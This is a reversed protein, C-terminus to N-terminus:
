YLDRHLRGQRQLAAMAGEGLQEGLLAMVGKGIGDVAGCLYLHAGGALYRELLDSQEALCHQVYQGQDRSWAKDLQSILGLEEFAALEARYYDDQQAHREGFILWLPAQHGLRQRAELFGLYPALGTGAGLLILPKDDSPLHFSGHHRLRVKLSQGPRCSALLGSALGSGGGALRQERVMLRIPGQDSAVSYTRPRLPTLQDIYDQAGLGTLPAFERRLAIAQWLPLLQNDVLVLAAPDLGISALQARAWSEERQPLVELLDGAQYAGDVALHLDHVPRQSGPNLCRNAMVMAEQWDDVTEAAELALRGALNHHWADIAGPAGRDVETVPLLLSAGLETLQAALWHGFACFHQYQRDGFALVAVDLGHLSVGGQSLRQQFGLVADPAQGEGYTAALLLVQRYQTLQAPELTALTALHSNVGQGDLWRKLRESCAAATGSQSAYAILTDAAGAQNNKPRARRVVFLWVGTVAFSGFALAALSWIIHGPLGFYLGTHLAYLNALLADGGRLESYRKHALVKGSAADLSVFSYAHHHPADAELYRVVLAGKPGRPMQWRAYHGDPRVKLYGQWAAELNLGKTESAPAKAVSQSALLSTVGQRYWDFAFYPGTLAMILLPIFFWTGLLAHFQWLAHRGKAGKKWALWDKLRGIRDPARRILGAILLVIACLAASGTIVSGASRPLLLWRHIAMVEAFFGSVAPRPGLIQGTYPNFARWYLEQSNDVFYLARGPLAPDDELYIRSLTKGPLALAPVLQPPSLVAGTVAVKPAPWLSTIPDELALLAGTLGVVLLVAASALGLWQHVRFSIRQTWKKSSM